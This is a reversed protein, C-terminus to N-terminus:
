PAGVASQVTGLNLQGMRGWGKQGPPVSPRFQEYFHFAQANLKEENGTWAELMEEFTRKVQRYEEEGFKKKLGAENGKKPKEAVMAVGDKLRLRFSMVDVEDLDQEAANWKRKERREQAEGPDAKTMTDISRGKSIATITPPPVPCRHRVLAGAGACPQDNNCHRRRGPKAKRLDHKPESISSKSRKSQTHEKTPPAKRKASKTASSNTIEVGRLEELKPQRTSSRTSAPM